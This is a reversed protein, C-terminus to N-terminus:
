KKNSRYGFWEVGYAANLFYSDYKRFRGVVAVAIEQGIGLLSPLWSLVAVLFPFAARFRLGNGLQTSLRLRRSVWLFIPLFATLDPKNQRRDGHDRGSQIITVMGRPTAVTSGKCTPM